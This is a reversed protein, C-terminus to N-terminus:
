QGWAERIRKVAAMRSIITEETIDPISEYEAVWKKLTSLHMSLLEAAEKLTGGHSEIYQVVDVALEKQRDTYPCHTGRRAGKKSRYEKALHKMELLFRLLTEPENMTKKEPKPSM